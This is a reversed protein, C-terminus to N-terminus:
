SYGYDRPWASKLKAVVSAFHHYRSRADETRTVLALIGWFAFRSVNFFALIMWVLSAIFVGSHKRHYRVLGETLLLDRRYNLKKASAGGHHIIEGVPAFRVKWGVDKFRRCWDTEEGFFFFSEDMLGVQELAERRVMMYCGTVVDVDRETDRQWAAYHERGCFRPWKLRFLGTTKLLLNLLMPFQFCTPQLTHDANLVRCGMIGVDQHLDM